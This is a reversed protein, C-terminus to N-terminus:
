LVKETFCQIEKELRRKITEYSQKKNIQQYAMKDIQKLRKKDLVGELWKNAKRTDLHWWFFHHYYCLLIINDTEFEMGKNGGVSHIHSAHLYAGTKGCRLCREGDRLILIKRVLAKLKAQKYKTM